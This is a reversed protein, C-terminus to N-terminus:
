LSYKELVDKSDDMSKVPMIETINTIQFIRLVQQQVNICIMEKAAKNMNKFLNVYCGLMKSDAYPINKMDIILTDFEKIHPNIENRLLDCYNEPIEVGFDKLTVHLVRNNLNIDHNDM